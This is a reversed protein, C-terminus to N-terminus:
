YYRKKNIIDKLNLKLEEGYRNKITKLDEEGLSSFVSPSFQMRINYNKLRKKIMELIALALRDKNEYPLSTTAYDEEKYRQKYQYMDDISIEGTKDDLVIGYENGESVYLVIYPMAWYSNRRGDFKMNKMFEDFTVYNEELEKKTIKSSIVGGNATPTIMFMDETKTVSYGFTEYPKGKYRGKRVYIVKRPNEDLENNNEIKEEEKSCLSQLLNNDKEFDTFTLSELKKYDELSIEGKRALIYFESYKYYVNIVSKQAEIAGSHSLFCQKFKEEIVDHIPKIVEISKRINKKDSIIEEFGNILRVNITSPSQEMKDLEIIMQIEDRSIGRSSILSNTVDENGKFGLVMDIIDSGYLEKLDERIAIFRKLDKEYRKIIMEVEVILSAIINDLDKYKSIKASSLCRNLQVHIMDKLAGYLPNNLYENVSAKIKNIYQSENNYKKNIKLLKTFFDNLSASYDITEEVENENIYNNEFYVNVFKKLENEYVKLFSDYVRKIESITRSIALAGLVSALAFKLNKELNKKFNTFEEYKLFSDDCGLKDILEKSVENKYRKLEIEENGKNKYDEYFTGQNKKNGFKKKLEEHANNIDKFRQEKVKDGPHLDPHNDRASKRYAKKLEQETYNPKLGLLNIMEQRTM